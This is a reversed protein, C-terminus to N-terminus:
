VRMMSREDRCVHRDPVVSDINACRRETNIKGIDADPQIQAAVIPAVGSTHFDDSHSIDLSQSGRRHRPVGRTAALISRTLLGLVQTKRRTWNQRNAPTNAPEEKANIQQFSPRNSPRSRFKASRAMRQHPCPAVIKISSV